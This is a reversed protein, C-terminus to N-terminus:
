FLQIIKPLKKKEMFNVYTVLTWKPVINGIEQAVLKKSNKGVSDKPKRV